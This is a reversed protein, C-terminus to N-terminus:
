HKMCNERLKSKKVKEGGGMAGGGLVGWCWGADVAQNKSLSPPTSGEGQFGDWARIHYSSNLLLVLM